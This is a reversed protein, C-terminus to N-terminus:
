GVQKVESAIARKPAWRARTFLFAIAVVFVMLSIVQGENLGAAFSTVDGRLFRIFFSGVAYLALYAAFLSGHPKLRGRFLWWLISFVLLDWLLEYVQTPHVAMGLPAYSDPHTWTVAWPLSSPAGYCCGNITCGVRGIAQALIIGPAMADAVPAFPIHRARCYAWTGLMGGLIAGFIALGAPNLIDGPYTLYHSMNDVLHVLKAFVVGLPIAWVAAGFVFDKNYGARKAFYLSWLVLFVIALLMIVGYWRISFSGITFAIPDVGIHLM